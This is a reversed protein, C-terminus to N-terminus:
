HGLLDQLVVLPRCLLIVNSVTFILKFKLPLCVPLASPRYDNVGKSYFWGSCASTDIRLPFFSFVSSHVVLVPLVSAALQLGASQQM